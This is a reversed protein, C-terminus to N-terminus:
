LHRESISARSKTSCIFAFNRFGFKSDRKARYAFTEVLFNLEHVVTCTEPSRFKNLYLFFGSKFLFPWFNSHSM